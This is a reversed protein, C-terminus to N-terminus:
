PKRLVVMLLMSKVEKRLSIACWFADSRNMV